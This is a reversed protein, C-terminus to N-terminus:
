GTIDNFDGVFHVEEQLTIGFKKIVEQKAKKILAYIDMATAGDDNIIFNAHSNSIHAGNIRYGKLACEDVLRGAYDGTPNKFVCGCSNGKPQNKRRQLYRSIADNDFGKDDTKLLAGLAIERDRLLSKRYLVQESLIAKNTLVGNNYCFVSKIKQGINKNFAGANTAILGGVTAPIGVLFEYGGIDHSKFFDLMAGVRVGCEIFAYGDKLIIKNLRKTSIVLGDYGKDSVLMNSGGGLTICDVGYRRAVSIATMMSQASTPEFYYRANGGTKFTTLQGFPHDLFLKDKTVSKFVLEFSM